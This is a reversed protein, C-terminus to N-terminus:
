GKQWNMSGHARRTEMDDNYKTKWAKEHNSLAARREAPTLDRWDQGEAVPYGKATAPKNLLAAMVQGPLPPTPVFNAPAPHPIPAQAPKEFLHEPTPAIPAFSDMSKRTM